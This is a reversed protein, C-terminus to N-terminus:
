GFAAGRGVGRGAHGIVFGILFVTSVSASRSNARRIPMFSGFYIRCTVGRNVTSITRFYARRISRDTISLKAMGCTTAYDNFMKLM